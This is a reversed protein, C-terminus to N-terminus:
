PTLFNNVGPSFSFNKRLRHPRDFAFIGSEKITIMLPSIVNAEQLQESTVEDLKTGNSSIKIFKRLSRGQSIPIIMDGNSLKSIKANYGRFGDFLHAETSELTASNLLNGGASYFNAKLLGLGNPDSIRGDVQWFIAFSGDNNMVVEHSDYYSSQNNLTEPIIVLNPEVWNGNADFRRYRIPEYFHGQCTVVGAGTTKQLAVHAASPNGCGSISLTKQLPANKFLFLDYTEQPLNDFRKTVVAFGGQNDADIDHYPDGGYRGLRIPSNQAQCNEDFFQVYQGADDFPIGDRFRVNFLAAAEGNNSLAILPNETSSIRPDDDSYVDFARRIIKTNPNMCRGVIRLPNTLASLTFSRGQDNVAVDFLSGSFRSPTFSRTLTKYSGDAKTHKASISFNLETLERCKISKTWRGNQCTLNSQITDELTDDPNLGRLEVKRGNESCTGSFVVEETDECRLLSLDGPSEFSLGVKSPGGSSENNQELSNSNGNGGGGGCASLFHLSLIM